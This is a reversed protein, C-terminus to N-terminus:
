NHPTENTEESIAKITDIMAHSCQAEFIGHVSFLALMTGFYTIGIGLILMKQFDSM